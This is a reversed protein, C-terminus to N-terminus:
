EESKWVEIGSLNAAGGSTAITLRGNTIPVTWPGLKAWTGATGSNYRTQV